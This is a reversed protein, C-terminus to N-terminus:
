DGGLLINTPSQKLRQVRDHLITMRQYLAPDSVETQFKQILDDFDVAEFKQDLLKKERDEDVKVKEDKDFVMGTNHELDFVRDIEYIMDSTNISKWLREAHSAINAWATGGYFQLWGEMSFITQASYLYTRIEEETGKSIFDDLDIYNKPIVLKSQNIVMDQHGLESTVAKVLYIRMWEYIKKVRMQILAEIDRMEVKDKFSLEQGFIQKQVDKEQVSVAQDKEHATKLSQKFRNLDGEIFSLGYFTVLEKSLSVQEYVERRPEKNIRTQEEKEGKERIIQKEEDSLGLDLHHYDAIELLTFAEFWNQDKLAENLVQNVMERDDEHLFQVSFPRGKLDKVLCFMNSLGFRNKINRRYKPDNFSTGLCAKELVDDDLTLFSDLYDIIHEHMGKTLLHKAVENDLGVFKELYDVICLSHKSEILAHALLNHDQASLHEVNQALERAYSDVLSKITEFRLNKFCYLNAIFTQIYQNNDVFIKAIENEDMKFNELNYLVERGYGEKIISEAVLGSLKHFLHLNWRVFWTSDSRILAEAIENESKHKLENFFAKRLSLNEEQQEIHLTEEKPAGQESM